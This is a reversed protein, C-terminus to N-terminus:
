SGLERFRGGVRGFTFIVLRISWMKHMHLHEMMYRVLVKHKKSKAEDDVSFKDLGGLVIRFLGGELSKWIYRPFYFMIAQLFLMFTVWQYYYHHIADPSLDNGLGVGPYPISDPLNTLTKNWYTSLSFTSTFYCYTDVVNAAVGTATCIIPAGFYQRATVLMSSIIFVLFTIRYHLYFVTNDAQAKERFLIRAVAVYKLMKFTLFVSQSLFPQCSLGPPIFIM